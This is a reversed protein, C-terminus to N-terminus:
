QRFDSWVTSLIALVMFFSFIHRYDFSSWCCRKVVFVICRMSSAGFCMVRFLLIHTYIIMKWSWGCVALKWSWDLNWWLVRVNTCYLSTSCRCCQRLFKVVFRHHCDIVPEWRLGSSVDNKKGVVWLKGSLM